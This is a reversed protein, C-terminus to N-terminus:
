GGASLMKEVEGELAGELPSTAAVGASGLAALLDAPMVIVGDAPQLPSGGIWISPFGHGHADPTDTFDVQLRAGVHRALAQGYGAYLGCRGGPPQKSIVRVRVAPGASPGASAVPAAVPNPPAAGEGQGENDEGM